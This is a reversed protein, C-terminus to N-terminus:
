KSFSEFLWPSTFPSGHSIAVVSAVLDDQGGQGANEDESHFGWKRGEVGGAGKTDTRWVVGEPSGGGQSEGEQSSGTLKYEGKRERTWLTDIHGMVHKCTQHYPRAIFNQFVPALHGLITEFKLYDEQRLRGLELIVHTHWQARNKGSSKPPLWEIWSKKTNGM